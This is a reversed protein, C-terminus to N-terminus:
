GVHELSHARFERVTGLAICVLIQAVMMRMVSSRDAGLAIRIAIEQTRQGVLLSVLGYIAAAALLLGM